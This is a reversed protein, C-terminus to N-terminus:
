EYKKPKFHLKVIVKSLSTFRINEGESNKLVINITSLESLALNVYNPNVIDVTITENKQGRISVTELLQAKTDGIYQEEIINTYIFITDNKQITKESKEVKLPSSSTYVLDSEINLIHPLAGFLRMEFTAHPTITFDDDSEKLDVLAEIGKNSKIINHFFQNFNQSEEIKLDFNFFEKQHSITIRGIDSVISNRFIVKCLAVGWQGDLRVKEILKTTYNSVVNNPFLDMSANSPLTIYFSM